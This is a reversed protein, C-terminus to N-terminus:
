VDSISFLECVRLQNRARILNHTPYETKYYIDNNLYDTLFRVAMIFSMYQGSKPILEIEDSSLHEKTELYYGELFAKKKSQDLEISGLDPEDERASIAISRLADGVDYFSFGPMVTDLDIVTGFESKGILVNNLKTDNHTTRSPLRSTAFEFMEVFGKSLGQVKEIEAHAEDIREVSKSRLAVQFQELRFRIDHFHPITVHLEDVPFDDLAILFAGYSRGAKRCDEDSESVEYSIKDPIFPQMRWVGFENNIWYENNVTPILQLVLGENKARVHNTVKLINQMLSDPETFIQTNIRQLIFDSTAVYKVRYTDNIHGGGWPVIENFNNPVQFFDTIHKLEIETM